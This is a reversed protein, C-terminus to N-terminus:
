GDPKASSPERCYQCLYNYYRMVYPNERPIREDLIPWWSGVGVHRLLKAYERFERPVSEALLMHVMRKRVREAETESLHARRLARAVGSKLTRGFSFSFTQDEEEIFELAIAICARDDHAVGAIVEHMIPFTWTGDGETLTHPVLKTLAPICFKGCYDRYREVVAQASWRGTGNYDQVRM